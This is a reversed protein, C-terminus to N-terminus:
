PRPDLARVIDSTSVGVGEGFLFESRSGPRSQLTQLNARTTTGVGFAAGLAARTNPGKLNIEGMGLILQVRQKEQASAAAWETSVIAEFVESAPIFGRDILRTPSVANLLDALTSDNGAIRPAAYGLATPDTLLENRLVAYEITM